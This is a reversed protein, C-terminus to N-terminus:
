AALVATEAWVVGEELGSEPVDPLGTVALGPGPGGTDCVRCVIQLVRSGPVSGIFSPNTQVICSVYGVLLGFSTLPVATQCFCHLYPVLRLCARSSLGRQTLATVPTLAPLKRRM